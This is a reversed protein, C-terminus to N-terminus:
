LQSSDHHPVSQGAAARVHKALHSQGAACNATFLLGCRNCKWYRRVIFCEEDPETIQTFDKRYRDPVRLPSGSM